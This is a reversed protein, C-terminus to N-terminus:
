RPVMEPKLKLHMMPRIFRAVTVPIRAVFPVKPRPSVNLLAHGLGIWFTLAALRIQDGERM